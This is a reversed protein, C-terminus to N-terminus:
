EPTEAEEPIVPIKEVEGTKPNYETWIIEDECGAILHGKRDKKRWTKHFRDLAGALEKRMTDVDADAAVEAWVAGDLGFPDPAIFMVGAALEGGQVWGDQKAQAWEAATLRAMHTRGAIGQEFALLRLKREMVDGGEAPHVAAIVGRSDAAAINLAQTLDPMVPLLPLEKQAAPKEPHKNVLVGMVKALDNGNRVNRYEWVLRKVINMDPTAEDTEFKRREMIAAMLKEASFNQTMFPYRKGPRTGFYVSKETPFSDASLGEANPEFLCFVTNQTNEAYGFGRGLITLEREHSEESFWPNMRVNVFNRSAAIM